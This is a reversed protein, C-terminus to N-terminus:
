IIDYDLNEIKEGPLLLHTKIGSKKATIVNGSSDDIFLTEEPVLGADELVFEFINSNPKRLGLIHSYYTKTFFIDISTLGTQQIYIKEFASKHIVNTNSLLYLNYKTKLTKLFQFSELRFDLIMANWADRVQLPNLPKSGKNAMHDYFHDESIHGTEFKEFVKNASVQSYMEKFDTVGLKLFASTTRDYDINMLVGGLDFIINKIEPM